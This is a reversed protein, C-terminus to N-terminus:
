CKGVCIQGLISKSVIEPRNQDYLVQTETSIIKQSEFIQHQANKIFMVGSYRKPYM